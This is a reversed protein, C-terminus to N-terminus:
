RKLEWVKFYYLERAPKNGILDREFNIREEAKEYNDECIQLALNFMIETIQQKTTRGYGKM